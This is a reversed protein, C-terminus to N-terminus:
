VLCVCGFGCCVGGVVFWGGGICCDVVWWGVLVLVVYGFCVFWYVVGVVFWDVVVGWCLVVGRLWVLFLGCEVM